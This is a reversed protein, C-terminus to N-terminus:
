NPTNPIYETGGLVRLPFHLERNGVEYVGVEAAHHWAPPHGRRLAGDNLGLDLQEQVAEVLPHLRLGLAGVQEVLGGGAEDM